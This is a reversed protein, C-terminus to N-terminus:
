VAVIKFLHQLFQEGEVKEFLTDKSRFGCSVAFLFLFLRPQRNTQRPSGTPSFIVYMEKCNPYAFLRQTGSTQWFVDSSIHWFVLLESM